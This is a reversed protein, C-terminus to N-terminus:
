GIWEEEIERLDREEELKDQEEQSITGNLEKEELDEFSESDVDIKKEQKKKKDETM